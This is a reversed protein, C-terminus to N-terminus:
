VPDFTDVVLVRDRRYDMPKVKVQAGRKKAEDVSTTTSDGGSAGIVMTGFESNEGMSMMVHTIHERGAGYFILNGMEPMVSEKFLKSLGSAAWDGASPLRDFVQLIWIAFGSCDLGGAPSSGGWVYPTGILKLALNVMYRREPNLAM